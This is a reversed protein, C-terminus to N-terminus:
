WGRGRVIERVRKKMIIGSGVPFTSFPVSAWKHSLVGSQAGESSEGTPLKQKIVMWQVRVRGQHGRFAVATAPYLSSVQSTLANSHGNFLILTNLKGRPDTFEGAM